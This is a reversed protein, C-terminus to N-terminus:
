QVQIGLFLHFVNYSFTRSLLSYNPMTPFNRDHFGYIELWAANQVILFHCSVAVHGSRYKGRNLRPILISDTINMPAWGVVIYTKPPQVFRGVIHCM